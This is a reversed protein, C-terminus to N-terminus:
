SAEGLETICRASKFCEKARRFSFRNMRNATKGRAITNETAQAYLMIIPDAKWSYPAVEIYTRCYAKIHMGKLNRRVKPAERKEPLDPEKLDTKSAKIETISRLRTPKTRSQLSPEERMNPTIRTIRFAHAVATAPTPNSNRAYSANGVGSGRTVVQQQM